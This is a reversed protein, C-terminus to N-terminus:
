KQIERYEWDWYESSYCEYYVYDVFVGRREITQLWIWKDYNLDLSIRRPMWAFYTHWESLRKDKLKKKNKKDINKAIKSKITFKM